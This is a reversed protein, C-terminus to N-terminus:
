HRRVPVAQLIRRALAPYDRDFHHGGPLQVTTYHGKPLGACRSRPDDAGHLCVVGADALKALEPALARGDGSAGIWQTVHFEFFAEGSPALLAILVLRDRLDQPLRNVMFPLADAGSSYGIVIVSSRSWTQMYRRVVRDLDRAAAEPTRATWFYRLSDWGIVAVGNQALTRAIGRDLAAWGGDGSLLVAMLDTRPGTAPVEHLPLDGLGAPSAAAPPSAGLGALAVITVLWRAAANM